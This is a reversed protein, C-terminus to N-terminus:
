QVRTGLDSASSSFTLLCQLHKLCPVETLCPPVLLNDPAGKDFLIVPPVEVYYLM